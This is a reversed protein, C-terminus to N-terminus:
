SQFVVDPPGNEVLSGRALEKLATVVKATSEEMVLARVDAPVSAAIEGPLAQLRVRIFNFMERLEDEVASRFVFLGEREALDLKKREVEIRLKEKMLARQGENADSGRREARSIRWRVIEGLPWARESGPMGESRWSKITQPHCSFFEAVEALTAVTWRDQPQDDIGLAREIEAVEDETEASELKTLLETREMETM